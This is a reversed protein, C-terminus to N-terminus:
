WRRRCPLTWRRSRSTACWSSRNWSSRGPSASASASAAPSSTRTAPWTAPTSAVRELWNGVRERIESGGLDTHLRLGEGVIEGVTMRPNLSSYPDQFIMQMSRASRQFDGPAYRPPLTEGEYVVEGAAKDHLGLMTKGLTSKGSGSEGVLGVIERPATDFSVDDVAHVIQNRGVDFHRTLGRNEVLPTM